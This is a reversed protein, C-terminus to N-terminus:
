LLFTRGGTFEKVRGDVHTCVPRQLMLPMYNQPRPAIRGCCCRCCHILGRGGGCSVDQNFYLCPLFTPPHCLWLSCYPLPLRYSPSSSPVHPVNSPGSSPVCSPFLSVPPLPPPNHLLAYTREARCLVGDRESLNRRGASPNPTSVRDDAEALIGMM